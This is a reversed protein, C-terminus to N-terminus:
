LLIEKFNEMDIPKGKKLFASNAAHNFILPTKNQNLLNNFLKELNGDRNIFIFLNHEAINAITENRVISNHLTVKAKEKLLSVILLREEAIAKELYKYQTQNKIGKSTFFIAEGDQALIKKLIRREFPSHWGSVFVDPLESMALLLKEAPVIINLPIARSIFIGIKKKQLLMENGLFFIPKSNLQKEYYNTVNKMNEM